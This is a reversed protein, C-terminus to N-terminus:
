PTLDLDFLDPTVTPKAAVLILDCLDCDELDLPLVEDAVDLDVAALVLPDVQYM